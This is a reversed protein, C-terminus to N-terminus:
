MSPFLTWSCPCAFPFFVKMTLGIPTDYIGYSNSMAHAGHFMCWDVCKIANSINGNGHSDMFRCPM